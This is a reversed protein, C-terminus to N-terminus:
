IDCMHAEDAVEELVKADNRFLLRMCRTSRAGPVRVVSLLAALVQITQEQQILNNTTKVFAPSALRTQNGLCPDAQLQQSVLFPQHRPHMVFCAHRRADLHMAIHGQTDADNATDVNIVYGHQAFPVTVVHDLAIDIANRYSSHQCTSPKLVIQMHAGACIDLRWILEKSLDERTHVAFELFYLLYSQQREAQEHVVCADMAGNCSSSSIAALKRPLMVMIVARSSDDQSLSSSDDKSLSCAAYQKLVPSTNVSPINHKLTVQPVITWLPVFMDNVQSGLLIHLKQCLAAPHNQFICGQKLVLIWVMAQESQWAELQWSGAARSGQQLLLPYGVFSLDDGGMDTRQILVQLHKQM